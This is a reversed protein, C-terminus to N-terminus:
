ISAGGLDNGEPDERERKEAAVLARIKGESVHSWGGGKKVALAMAQEESTGAPLWEVDVAAGNQFKILHYSM